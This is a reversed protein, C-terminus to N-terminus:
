RATALGTRDIHDLRVQRSNRLLSCGARLCRTIRQEVRVAHLGIHDEAHQPHEVCAGTLHEDDAALRGAEVVADPEALWDGRRDVLGDADYQIEDRVGGRRALSM